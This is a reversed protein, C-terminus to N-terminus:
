KQKQKQQTPLKGAKKLLNYAREIEDPSIEGDMNTDLNRFSKPLVCYDSQDNFLNLVIIVFAATIILSVKIDRTAIFVITFILLRRMFKSSLLAKHFPASLDTVLYKSGINLFIMCMGFLYKNTNVSTFFTDLSQNMKQFFSQEAM